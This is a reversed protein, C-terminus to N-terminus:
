ARVPKSGWHFQNESGWQPNNVNKELIRTIDKVEEGHQGHWIYYFMGVVCATDIDKRQVGQDSSAVVRNLGDNCVWTDSQIKDYKAQSFVPLLAVCGVLFSTTKRM